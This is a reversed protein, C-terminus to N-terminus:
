SPERLILYANATSQNRKNYSYQHAGRACYNEDISKLLDSVNDWIMSDVFSEIKCEEHLFEALQMAFEADKHSHSIFVQANIKPFFGLEIADASLSKNSSLYQKIGAHLKKKHEGLMKYNNYKEISRNSEDNWELNFLSFMNANRNDSQQTTM